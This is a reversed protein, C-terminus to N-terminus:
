CWTSPPSSRIPQIAGTFRRWVCICRAEEDLFAAYAPVLAILFPTGAIAGDITAASILDRREDDALVAPSPSPKAAQAKEAWRRAGEAYRAQSEVVM